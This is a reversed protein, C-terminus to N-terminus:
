RLNVVFGPDTMKLDFITDLVQMAIAAIRVAIAIKPTRPYFCSLLLDIKNVPALRHPLSPKDTVDGTLYRRRYHPLREPCPPSLIRWTRPAAL